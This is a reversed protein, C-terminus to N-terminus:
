GAQSVLQQIRLIVFEAPKLPAFGVLVNVVGLDIDAQTTTERDCKVFYADRPAAGAFAGQRFLGQMFSGISLRLQSWLPEDNPEFVAWQSGRYLSEHLYLALRRVPVYKWDSAMVNAGSLTRAGWLVAGLAPFTRFANVGYDNLTGQQSDTLAVALEVVGRATADIGAPAKWIGRAADTRAMLGAVVGCPPFEAARGEQLPDSAILRPFYLAANDSRVTFNPVASTAASAAAWEEPPDVILFARMEEVFTMAAQWLSADSTSWADLPLCLLNFIEATRLAYMGTGESDSGEMEAAGAPAGDFGGSFVATGPSPAGGVVGVRALESRRELVRTVWRAATTQHSVGYHVEQTVPNGAADLESLTLDFTGAPTEGVTVSVVAQLRNGWAGPNAAVLQLGPSLFASAVRAGGGVVISATGTTDPGSSWSGEPPLASATLTGSVTVLQGDAGALAQIDAAPDAGWNITGSAVATTSLEGDQDTGTITLTFTSAVDDVNSVEVQFGVLTTDTTLGVAAVLTFGVDVNAVRVILADRGGNLYFHRVCQSMPSDPHLGGFLREYQSFSDCLRPTNLPGRPAGGVFAAVSTAVGAVSRNGSPIEEIYVGPATYATM